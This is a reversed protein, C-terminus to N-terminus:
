ALAGVRLCRDGHRAADRRDHHGPGGLRRGREARRLPNILLYFADPDHMPQPREAQRQEAGFARAAFVANALFYATVLLVRTRTRM